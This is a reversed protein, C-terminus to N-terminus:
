FLKIVLMRDKNNIDKYVNIDASPFFERALATLNEKQDYGMEFFMMSREKLVKHADEFIMRYFKLGDDGGFLAVNPEYDRVSHEVVEDNRIYPPNSVLIDLKINNEILPKLMSGEFFRIDAQNNQANLIAVELAEKSIDSAYVNLNDEEKKLAIAIAGSGTGVDALDIKQDKFYEDYGSLVRGVLEETEFRPILVAEDVKLRYGYFYSYGLVYNLPEGEILRKVGSEYKDVISKRAENDKELYLNINEDNCLEFLFARLTNLDMEKKYRYLLDNYSTM